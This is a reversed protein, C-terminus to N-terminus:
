CQGKRRRKETYMNEDAKKLAQELFSEEEVKCFAYGFAIGAEFPSTQNYKSVLQKLEERKEALLNADFDTLIIAFEDGFVHGCNDNIQKFGNLDFLGICINQFDYKRRSYYEVAAHFAYRNKINTLSDRDREHKLKENLDSMKNQSTLVAESLQDIEFLGTKSLSQMKTNEDYSFNRVEDALQVIPKSFRSTIFVAAMIGLIVTVCLSWAMISSIRDPFKHLESKNMLGVLYWQENSFPTNGSYMNLNKGCGFINHGDTSNIIEFIDLGKNKTNLSM